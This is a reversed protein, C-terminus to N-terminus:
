SSVKVVNLKRERQIDKMFYLAMNLWFWGILYGGIVDSLFHVGLYIRSLGILVVITSLIFAIAYKIRIEIKSFRFIMFAIFGYFFFSNLSHGSPFSYSFGEYVEAGLPRDRGILNKLFFGTGANCLFTFWFVKLYSVGSLPLKWLFYSLIAAFLLIAFTGGLLTVYEFLKIGAPTRFQGIWNDASGDIDVIFDSFVFGLAIITTVVIAMKKINFIAMQEMSAFFTNIKWKEFSM